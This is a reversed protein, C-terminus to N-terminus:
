PWHTPLPRSPSGCWLAVAAVALANAIQQVGHLALRVEAQGWPSSLRFTACLDRDVTVDEARVDTDAGVAYGLIPCASLSTM